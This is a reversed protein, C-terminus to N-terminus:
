RSELRWRRGHRAFVLEGGVSELAELDPLIWRRRPDLATLTLGDHVYLRGGVLAWRRPPASLATRALRRLTAPAVRHVAADTLVLWEAGADLVDLVPGGFPGDPRSLEEAKGDPRALPDPPGTPAPTIGLAALGELLLETWPAEPPLRALLDLHLRAADEAGLQRAARALVWRAGLDEPSRLLMAEAAARADKPRNGALAATALDRRATQALALAEPTEANPFGLIAGGDLLAASFEPGFALKRIPGDAIPGDAIPGDFRVELWQRGGQLDIGIIRDTLAVLLRDGRVAAARVPGALAGRAEVDGFPGRAVWRRGRGEFHVVGAYGRSLLPGEGPWSSEGKVPDLWTVRSRGVELVVLREGLGVPPWAVGALGPFWARPASLGLDLEVLADAGVAAWLRGRATAVLPGSLPSGVIIPRERSGDALRFRGVSRDLPVALVAGALVPGAVAPDRLPTSWLIRGDKADVALVAESGAVYIREGRAVAEPHAGHLELRWRKAGEPGFHLLQDESAVVLGDNVAVPTPEARGVAARWRTRGSAPDLALLTGGAFALLQGNVWAISSPACTATPAFRWTPMSGGTELSQVVDRLRPLADNPRGASVSALARAWREAPPGTPRAREFRVLRPLLGGTAAGAAQLAGQPDGACARELAPGNPARHAPALPASPPWVAELAADPDPGAGERDGLRAVIRSGTRSLSLSTAEPNPEGASVVVGPTAELRALVAAYLACDAEEPVVIWTAPPLAPPLLTLLLLPWPM